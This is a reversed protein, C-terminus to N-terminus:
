FRGPPPSTTSVRLEPARSSERSLLHIEPFRFSETIRLLLGENSSSAASWERLLAQPVPVVLLTDSATRVQYARVVSVASTEANLGTTDTIGESWPNRVRRADVNVTVSDAFPPSGPAVRFLIRAENISFGSAFSDVPARFPLATEFLGGLVLTTDTGTPAAALPAHIFLDSAIPTDVSDTTATGSVDHAYRIRIRGSGAKFGAIGQSSGARIVLGPLASPNQAWFKVTGFSSAGIELQYSGIADNPNATAISVGLTPGPWAVSTSDWAVSATWLQLPADPIPLSGDFSLTLAISQIALSPDTTDPLVWTGVTLLARAEYTGQQGALLTTGLNATGQSVYTDRDLPATDRATTGLGGPGRILRENGVLQEAKESCGAPLGALALLLGLTLFRTLRV